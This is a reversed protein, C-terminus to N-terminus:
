LLRAFARNPSSQGIWFWNATPVKEAKDVVLLDLKAKSPVVKLGLQTQLATILDPGREITNDASSPTPPPPFSSPDPAFELDFDYKGNLGTKDIVPRNLQNGLMVTLRALPQAKVMSHVSIGNSGHTILNVMGPGSLRGDKDMKPPGEANADDEVSEKLKPGGKAIILQISPVGQSWPAAHRWITRRDPEAVDQQGARKDRRDDAFIGNTSKWRLTVNNCVSRRQGQVFQYFRPERVRCVVALTSAFSRFAVRFMTVEIM